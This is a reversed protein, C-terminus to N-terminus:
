TRIKLVQTKDGIKIGLNWAPFESLYTHLYVRLTWIPVGDRTGTRHFWDHIGAPPQPAVAATVYLPKTRSVVRLTYTSGLKVLYIGKTEDLGGFQLTATHVTVSATAGGGASGRAHATYTVTSGTATPTVERTLQCDVHGTDAHAICRPTPAAGFYTGGPELGAIRVTVHQESKPKPTPTPKSPATGPTTPTAGPTTGPTTPTPESKQPAAAVSITQTVTPAALWDADGAQTADVVCLGPATFHVLGSSLTCGTSSGDLAVTVPLGSEAGASPEYTGGVTADSPAASTFAVTQSAKGFTVTTPDSSVAEFDEDTAKTASVTCTGASTVSLSSDTVTCGTATGDTATFSVAGTGSGGSTTLTLSTGFTGSTSTVTLAAQTAKAFTVNTVASSATEFNEDAAKTATVSCTGASSTSLTSGSVSCGSATGDTATFSVAGTGSGGSTTLTLPTGYTGGTSTVTLPAQTAQGFTVTTAASSVAEYNGDAAKTAIVSCTGVSTATLSSGSVSCGTATGDTATFSVAGTGSGGNTTLTLPTGFTGDTSTVTLAAQTAKAFTVTTAASSAEEYNEDAAKTATVSCTGASTTSLSSGSVSCGSATGDTATFSIAGTGSGGSTTLTLATGYTSGTSTVTLAAQTAKGFTVTTPASSIAEYNGDAAKTATVTCTGATDATLTTGSVSCGTATGDTASYTVAGTGSGGNAFLTASAGFTGGTSNVTLTAQTAKAFTVTTAASSVAEFEADAAKTATVSCTGASTTSLTSGSVSCGSATGDTATFSIAGTGSGGSTTLTLPAGYTGTKSTVTLAAQQQREVDLYTAATLSADLPFHAPSYTGSGPIDTYTAFGGNGDAVAYPGIPASGGGATTMDEITTSAATLSAGVTIVQDLAPYGTISNGGNPNLTLAYGGGSLTVASWIFDEGAIAAVNGLGIASGLAGSTSITQAELDTGTESFEFGIFGGSPDTTVTMGIPSAEEPIVGSSSTSTAGDPVFLYQPEGSNYDDFQSLIDGRSDVVTSYPQTGEFTLAAGSVAGADSYRQVVIEKEDNTNAAVVFGGNASDEAISGDANGEVGNDVITILSGVTSGDPAFVQVYYNPLTDNQGQVVLAGDSSNSGWYLVAFDGNSLATVAAGGIYAASETAGAPLPVQVTNVSGGNVIAAQLDTDAAESDSTDTASDNAGVLVIQGGTLDAVGYTAAMTDSGTTVATSSSPAPDVENVLPGGPVAPIGFPHASSRPSAAGAGQVLGPGVGAFTM